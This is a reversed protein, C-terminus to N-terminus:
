PTYVDNHAVNGPTESFLKKSQIVINELRRLYKYILILAQDDPKKEFYYRYTVRVDGNITQKPNKPNVLKGSIKQGKRGVIIEPKFDLDPDYVATVTFAAIKEPSKGEKLIISREENFFKFIEDQKM